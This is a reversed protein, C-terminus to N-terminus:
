EKGVGSEGSIYIPAQSRAVKEITKCLDQVLKSDGIVTPKKPTQKPKVNLASQVVSRLSNLDIPKTLFDFAGYKLAQIASDMSGHASIVAIPIQSDSSQLENVFEVGDGDPLRMDTLCLDFQYKNLLSRATALDEACHSDIDMRQLTIQLLERIDPEDDIILALQSM